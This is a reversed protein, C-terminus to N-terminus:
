NDTGLGETHLLQYYSYIEEVLRCKHWCWPTLFQVLFDFDLKAVIELLYPVSIHWEYGDTSILEYINITIRLPKFIPTFYCVIITAM